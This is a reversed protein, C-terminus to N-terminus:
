VRVRLVLGKHISYWRLGKRSMELESAVIDQRTKFTLCPKGNEGRAIVIGPADDCVTWGLRAAKDNVYTEMTRLEAGDSKDYHGLINGEWYIMEMKLSRDFKILSERVTSNAKNVELDQM